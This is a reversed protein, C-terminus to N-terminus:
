IVKKDPTVEIIHPGSGFQNHGQWNSMVTNGNPLRQLGTMFKLNIGSLDSSKIEWVTKGDADAEFVRAGDKVADGCAILTHGSPLRVVSHPGSRAPITKLVKGDADYERVVQEGYHAVLYHGNTLCRANRMYLHGGDKGDPLM